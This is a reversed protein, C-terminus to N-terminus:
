QVVSVARPCSPLKNREVLKSNAGETIFSEISIRFKEAVALRRGREGRV